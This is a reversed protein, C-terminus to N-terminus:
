ECLLETCELLKRVSAANQQHGTRCAKISGIWLWPALAFDGIMDLVKHRACENKFRLSNDVPGDKGFVLVDGPSVRQCLGNARLYEAERLLLFTRATM